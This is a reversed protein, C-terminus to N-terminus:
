VRLHGGNQGGNKWYQGAKDVMTWWEQFITIIEPSEM